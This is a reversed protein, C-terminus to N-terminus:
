ARAEDSVDPRGDNGGTSSQDNTSSACELATMAEPGCYRTLYQKSRRLDALLKVFLGHDEM